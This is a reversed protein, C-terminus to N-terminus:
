PSTALRRREILAAVAAMIGTASLAGILIQVIWDFTSNRDLGPFVACLRPGPVPV